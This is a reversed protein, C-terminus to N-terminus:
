RLRTIRQTFREGEVELVCVYTGAALRSGDLSVEHRGAAQEQPAVLAAVERGLVDYVALSVRASRRLSYAITSAASFPNPYGPHLADEFLAEPGPGAAVPLTEATLYDFLTAGEFVAGAPEGEALLVISWHKIGDLDLVGDGEFGEPQVAFGEDGLEDATVLPILLQTWGTPTTFVDSTEYIWTQRGSQGDPGIEEEEEWLEFRFAVRDAGPLPEVNNYWLSLHTSATLDPFPNPPV